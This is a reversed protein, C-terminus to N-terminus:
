RINLSGAYILFRGTQRIAETQGEDAEAAITLSRIHDVGPVAGIQAMLQSREPLRGFAWGQGDSGGTLPHLFRRLTDDVAQAVAHSVDRSTPVLEVDVKVALYQPGVVAVNIGPLSREQLFDHVRRRLENSPRPQATASHPVIIVSVVGPTRTANLPGPALNLLPVCGARAV